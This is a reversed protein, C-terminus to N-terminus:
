YRSGGFRFVVGASLRVHNQGQGFLSSHYYDVEFLRIRFHKMVRVDAGGGFAMAYSTSKGSLNASQISVTTQDYGFLAHAFPVLVKIRDTYFRPGTLISFTNFHNPVGRLQSTGYFGSFQQTMGLWDTANETLAVQWGNRSLDSAFTTPSSYFPSFLSSLNDRQYGYGGYIEMSKFRQALALQPVTFLLGVLLFLVKRM